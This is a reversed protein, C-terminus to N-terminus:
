VYIADFYNTCSLIKELDKMNSACGFVKGERKIEFIAVGKKGSKHWGCLFFEDGQRLDMKDAKWNGKQLKGDISSVYNYFGEEISFTVPRVIKACFNLV